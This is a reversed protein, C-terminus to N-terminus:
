VEGYRYKTNEEIVQIEDPTLDFLQYVREDLETELHVIEDSLRKHQGCREELWDEWEDRESLLIDQKFVKKVETRFTPFDLNWWATLKQNLKKGQTGLDSLIWRGISPRVMEAGEFPQNEGFDIIAEIQVM